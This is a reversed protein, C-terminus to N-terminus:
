DKLNRQSFSKRNSRGDLQCTKKSSRSRIDLSNPMAWASVCFHYDCQDWKMYLFWLKCSGSIRQQQSHRPKLKMEYLLCVKSWFDWTRALRPSPNINKHWWVDYDNTLIWPLKQLIRTRIRTLNQFYLIFSVYHNTPYDPKVKKTMSWAGPDENIM